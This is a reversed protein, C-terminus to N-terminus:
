SIEHTNILHYGVIAAAMAVNMSTNIGYMPIHIADPAVSLLEKSIGCKENGLIILLEKNPPTYINYPISQNTIEIALKHYHTPIEQLDTIIEIQLYNDTSRSIRKIKKYNLKQSMKNYIYIKKLAAADALRYISAINREDEIHDLLISIPHRNQHIQELRENINQREQQFSKQQHM